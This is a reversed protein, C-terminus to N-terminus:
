SKQALSYRSWRREGEKNLVGSKVLRLLERQITKESCDKIVPSFDKITLNNRTKLLELIKNERDYKSSNATRKEGGSVTGRGPSLFNGSKSQRIQGKFATTADMPGHALDVWENISHRSSIRDKEIAPIKTPFDGHEQTVFQDRQIAFFDDHLTGRGASYKFNSDSSFSLTEALSELEKKLISFNMESINGALYLVDLCSLIELIDSTTKSFVESRKSSFNKLSLFSSVTNLGVERLRWKMPENDSLFNTILYIAASVKEFKRYLFLLFNDKEFVNFVIAKTTDSLQGIINETDKKNDM